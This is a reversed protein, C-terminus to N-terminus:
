ADQSFRPWLRAELERFVSRQVVETVSSNWTCEACRTAMTCSAECKLAETMSGTCETSCLLKWSAYYDAQKNVLVEVKRHSFVHIFDLNVKRELFCKMLQNIERTIDIEKKRRFLGQILKVSSLSDTIIVVQADTLQTRLIGALLRRIAELEIQTISTEDTCPFSQARWNEFNDVIAFAGVSKGVTTDRVFSADTAFLFNKRLAEYNRLGQTNTADIYTVKGLLTALVSNGFKCCEDFVNKQVQTDRLETKMVNLLGFTGLDNRLTLAYSSTRNGRPVRRGEIQLQSNFLSEPRINCRPSLLHMFMRLRALPLILSPRAMGVRKRMDENSMTFHRGNFKVGLLKRLETHFYADLTAANKKTLNIVDCGWLLCPGYAAIVAESIVSRGKGFWSRSYRMKIRANMQATQARKEIHRGFTGTSDVTVGLYTYEKVIPIVDGDIKIFEMEHLSKFDDNWEMPLIGSKGKPGSNLEMGGERAIDRFSAYAKSIANLNHALFVVDDAFALWKFAFTQKQSDTLHNWQHPLIEHVYLGERFELRIGEYEPNEKEWERFLEDVVWVFLLAALTDGQLVGSGTIITDGCFQIKADEHLQQLWKALTDPCRNRLIKYLLSRSVSDFAKAIDIFLVYLPVRGHKCVDIVSSLILVNDRCNHYKRNMQAQLVTQNTIEHCTKIMAKELLNAISPRLSITRYCGILDKEGGKFLLKVRSEKWKKPIKGQRLTARLLFDLHNEAGKLCLVPIGDGTGRIKM